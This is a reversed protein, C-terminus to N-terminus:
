ALGTVLFTWSSCHMNASTVCFATLVVNCSYFAWDTVYINYYACVCWPFLIIIIMCWTFPSGLTQESGCTGVNVPSSTHGIGNVALLEWRFSLLYPSWIDSERVDIIEIELILLRLHVKHSVVSCIKNFESTCDIFTECPSLSYFYVRNCHIDCLEFSPDWTIESVILCILLKNDSEIDWNLTKSFNNWSDYFHKM